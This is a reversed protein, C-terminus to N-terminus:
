GREGCDLGADRALADHPRIGASFVVVDAALPEGEAFELVVGGTDGAVIRETVKSTHVKLGLDEVQTRLMASGAEDLQVNMLGAAFEVVHTDLGLNRLANACELGLM